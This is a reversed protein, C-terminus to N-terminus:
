VPIKLFIRVSGQERLPAPYVYLLSKLITILFIGGSTCINTERLLSSHYQPSDWLNWYTKKHYILRVKKTVPLICFYYFIEGTNVAWRRFGPPESDGNGASWPKNAKDGEFHNKHVRDLFAPSNFGQMVAKGMTQLCHSQPPYKM